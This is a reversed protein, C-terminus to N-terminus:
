KSYTRFLSTLYTQRRSSVIVVKIIFRANDIYVWMKYCPPVKILDLTVTERNTIICCCRPFLYLFIVPNLYGRETIIMAKYMAEIQSDCDPDNPDYATTNCINGAMLTGTEDAVERALRLAQRNMKELDGERGISALKDRHAYYQFVLWFAVPCWMFCRSAM